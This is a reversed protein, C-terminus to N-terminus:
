SCEVIDELGLLVEFLEEPEGEVKLDVEGGLVSHDYDLIVM